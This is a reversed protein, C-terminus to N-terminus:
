GFAKQERLKDLLGDPLDLSELIEENDQGQSHGGHGIEVKTRSFKYPSGIQRVKIGDPGEVEVVMERDINQPHMAAEEINLVPEVCADRAKFIEVWEDLTRTAIIEAIEQKVQKPDGGFCLISGKILDERGIAQCFSTWFQPEISGM